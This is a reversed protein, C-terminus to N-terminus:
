SYVQGKHYLFKSKEKLQSLHSSNKIPHEMQCLDTRQQAGLPSCCSTGETGADLAVVPQVAAACELFQM